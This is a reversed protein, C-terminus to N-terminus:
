RAVSYLPVGGQPCGQFSGDVIICVSHETRFAMEMSMCVFLGRFLPCRAIRQIVAWVFEGKYHVTLFLKTSESMLCVALVLPEPHLALLVCSSSIERNAVAMHRVQSTM